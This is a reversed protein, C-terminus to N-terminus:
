CLSAPFLKEKMRSILKFKEESEVQQRIDTRSARDPHFKLLARKYAAHVQIRLQQQRAEWEEEIARKYEPTEKIKERENIINGQCLSADEPSSSSSVLNNDGSHCPEPIVEALQRKREASASTEPKDQTAQHHKETLDLEKKGKSAATGHCRAEKSKPIFTSSVLGQWLGEKGKSPDQFRSSDQNSSPCKDLGSSQDEVVTEKGLCDDAKNIPSAKAASTSHSCSPVNEQNVKKPSETAPGSTPFRATEPDRDQAGLQDKDCSSSGDRDRADSKDKRAHSKKKRKCAEEWQERPNGRSGDLIECDSSDSEYSECLDPYYGYRNRSCSGETYRARCRSFNRSAIGFGIFECDDSADVASKKQVNSPASTSPMDNVGMNQEDESSGSDCEYFSDTDENEEDDDDDDIHITGEFSVRNRERLVHSPGFKQKLSDRVDVGKKSRKPVDIIFVGDYGDSDDLDIVVVNDFNEKMKCPRLKRKGSAPGPQSCDRSLGEGRM